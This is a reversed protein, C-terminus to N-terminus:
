VKSQNSCHLQDITSIHRVQMYTSVWRSLLLYIIITITLNFLVVSPDDRLISVYYFFVIFFMGIKKWQRYIVIGDICGSFYGLLITGIVIGPFGFNLYLAGLYTIATMFGAKSAEPHFVNNFYGASNQPKEPWIGRPVFRLFFPIILTRGYQYNLQDMNDRIDRYALWPSLESFFLGSPSVRQGIRESRTQGIFIFVSIACAAIVTIYVLSFRRRMWFSVALLLLSGFVFSSRSFRILPFLLLWILALIFVICGRVNNHLSIRELNFRRVIMRELLVALVAMTVANLGFNIIQNFAGGINAKGYDAIMATLQAGSYFESLGFVMITQVTVILNGMLLILMGIVLWNDKYSFVYPKSSLSNELSRFRIRHEGATYGGLFVMMLVVFEVFWVYYREDTEGFVYPAINYIAYLYIIFINRVYFPRKFNIFPLCIFIALFILIGRV